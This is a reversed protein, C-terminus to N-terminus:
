KISKNGSNRPFHHPGKHPPSVAKIIRTGIEAKDKIKESLKKNLLLLVKCKYIVLHVSSGTGFSSNKRIFHSM